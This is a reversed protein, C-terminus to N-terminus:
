RCDHMAPGFSMHAHVTRRLDRQMLCGMWMFRGDCVLALHLRPGADGCSTLITTTDPIFSISVSPTVTSSGPAHTAGLAITGQARV